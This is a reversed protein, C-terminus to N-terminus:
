NTYLYHGSEQWDRLYALQTTKTAKQSICPVRKKCFSNKIRHEVWQADSIMRQPYRILLLPSAASADSLTVTLRMLDVYFDGSCVCVILVTIVRSPGFINM